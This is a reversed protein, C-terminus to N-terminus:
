GRQTRPSDVILTYPGDNVLHVTMMAGFRGTNVTRIEERLASVFSEFLREAASSAMAADYSPRRGKRCDAMLTFQSVALVEADAEVVSHRGVSGAVEFIRLSAIKRAMWTVDDVGDDTGLGALVLLGRGIRAIAAGDVLVKAETV